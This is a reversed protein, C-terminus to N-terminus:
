LNPLFFGRATFGPASDVTVSPPPSLKFFRFASDATQSLLICPLLKNSCHLLARRQEDIQRIKGVVESTDTVKAVPILPVMGELMDLELGKSRM